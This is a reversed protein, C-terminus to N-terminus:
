QDPPTALANFATDAQTAARSADIRRAPREFRDVVEGDEDIATMVVRQPGAEVQWFHASRELRELYWRRSPGVRRPTRVWRPQRGFCGDGVYVTGAEDIRGAAIPKTRKLAHDHHEFGVSLHYRDFLDLWHERGQKSYKGNYSRFAPFMPVHYAAFVHPRDQHLALQSRLWDAQDGGHESLHGSDLIILAINEGFTRSFYSRGQEQAFYRSYFLADQETGNYGGRVEHNGIAAVIPITRGLPTVMHQQWSDLWQDWTEWRQPDGDVYALDGGIVCFLPETRAAEVELKHVRESVGMDGGVLFRIPTDDDPATIFTREGTYGSGSDGAVFYYTTAPELNSLEVTHVVRPIPLRELRVASGSASHRYPASTGSRIDYLVKLDSVSETQVNVTMTTSPDSQWTLYVHRPQAHVNVCLLAVMLLASDVIREGRSNM